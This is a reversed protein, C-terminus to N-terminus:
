ELWALLERLTEKHGSGGWVRRAIEAATEGAECRVMPDARARVLEKVVGVNGYEAALHLATKAGVRCRADLREPGRFWELLERVLVLHADWDFDARSVAGGGAYSLGEPVCAALHLATLGRAPEVVFAPRQALLYRLGPLSHRANLAIAHGLGTLPHPAVLFAARACPADPDAGHSRLRDALRFANRRVAVHFPTEIDPAAATNGDVPVGAAVLDDVLTLDDNHAQDAFTHLASWSRRGSEDYPSTSLANADAGHQVLLQFLSRRNWRVSELLPTRSEPGAPTNIEEVLWGSELIVKCAEDHAERAAYHPLTENAEVRFKVLRTKEQLFALTSKLTNLYDAGNRLIMSFKDSGHVAHKVLPGYMVIYRVDKKGETTMPVSATGELHEIMIKLCETHHLYAAWELPSNDKDSFKWNPDAGVSLLFSVIRPKNSHVAWFLPTGEPQFDVDMSGPFISHSIRCTTFADVKAGGIEILDKGLAAININDKFSLLWHLPTEGSASQIFASAGNELLLKVMEPHGSRCACLLATEGESNLLDVPVKVDTILEKLLGYAGVAASAHTIKDGRKNVAIDAISTRPGLSELHFDKRMLTSQTLGYLWQNDHYWNAGVGGYGFRVLDGTKEMEQSDLEKLDLMAKRSGRLAQNKLYQLVPIEPPIERQCAKFMRYLFAQPISNGERAGQTLCGLARDVDSSVGYGNLLFVTLPIQPADDDRHFLTNVIFNQVYPQLDRTMDWSYRHSKFGLEYWNIKNPASELAANKLKNMDSNVVGATNTDSDTIDMTAFGKTIGIDKQGELERIVASLDRHDPDKTLTNSFLSDLHKFFPQQLYFGLVGSALMEKSAGMQRLTSLLTMLQTQLTQLETPNNQPEGSSQAQNAQIHSTASELKRTFGWDFIWSELKSMPLVQDASKLREIELLQEEGHLSGSVLLSFPDKGDIALSWAVLGFSYVDTLKLKAIPIPSSVEPARWTRTSGIMVEAAETSEVIAFGFDALKPVLIKEEHSCIIINEPKVDGHVIGNEHLAELGRAIGLCMELKLADSLPPGRLQVGALTGRDGYEVVLVPLRHLPDAPNTGWALGLFDIINPHQLLAPHLLAHFETLVSQLARSDERTAPKGNAKFAVRASKYVVYRPRKPAKIVNEVTWGGMDTLEVINEPGTPIAQRTVTFSAGRGLFLSSDVAESQLFAPPIYSKVTDRARRIPLVLDFVNPVYSESGTVPLARIGDVGAGDLVASESNARPRISDARNSDM